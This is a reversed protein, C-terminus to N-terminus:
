RLRKHIKYGSDTRKIWLDSEKTLTVLERHETELKVKKGNLLDTEQEQNIEITNLGASKYPDIEGNGVEINGIKTRRLETLMAPYGLNKGLDFGLQRIYTGSSVKVEFEAENNNFSKIEFSYITRDKEKLKVEEGKLALERARKGNVKINSYIPPTQKIDGLFSREIEDKIEEITLEVNEVEATIEGETDLTDTTKGFLIKGTYTKEQNLFIDLLRTHAGTAVILLGSAFPDLVGSFGAKSINNEHKFESLARNSSIGTPKDLIYLGM